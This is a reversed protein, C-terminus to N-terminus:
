IKGPQVEDMLDFISRPMPREWEHEDPHGKLRWCVRISVGEQPYKEYCLKEQQLTVIWWIWNMRENGIKCCVPILQNAMWSNIATSPDAGPKVLNEPLFAFMETMLIVSVLMGPKGEVPCPMWHVPCLIPNFKPNEKAWKLYEDPKGFFPNQEIGSSTM